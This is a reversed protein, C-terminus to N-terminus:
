CSYIKTYIACSMKDPEEIIQDEFYDQSIPLVTIVMGKIISILSLSGTQIADDISCSTRLGELQIQELHPM